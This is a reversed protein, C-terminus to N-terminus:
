VLSRYMIYAPVFGLRHHQFAEPVCGVETFGLSRYLVLAAHNTSVVQNFQIARYGSDRAADLCHMVLARGIGQGRATRAVVFTATCVHSGRGPMNKGYRYMGLLTGARCAVVCGEAGLWQGDIFDADIGDVFPLADGEDSTSRLLAAMAPVDGTVAARLEVVSM